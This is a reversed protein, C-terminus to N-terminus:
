PNVPRALFFGMPGSKEIRATMSSSNAVMPETIPEFKRSLDPSWEVLYSTGPVADWSIDIRDPDGPVPSVVAAFRTKGDVPNTGLQFEQYDTLGDDDTDADANDSNVPLGYYSEWADAMRDNDMDTTSQGLRLYASTESGDQSFYQFRARGFKLQATEMPRADTDSGETTFSFVLVDSMSILCILMPTEPTKAIERLVLKAEPIHKGAACSQVLLPSAKDVQKHILIEGPAGSNLPGTLGLGVLDIWGAFGPEVSEGPIGDVQLLGYSEAQAATAVLLLAVATLTPIHVKM